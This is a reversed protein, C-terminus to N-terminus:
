NLETLYQPQGFPLGKKIAQVDVVIFFPRM